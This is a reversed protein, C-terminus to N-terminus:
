ANGTQRKSPRAPSSEEPHREISEGNEDLAVTTIGRGALLAGYNSGALKDEIAAAIEANFVTDEQVSLERLELEGNLAAEIRRRAAATQQSSVARRARM